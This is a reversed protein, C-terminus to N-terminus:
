DKLCEAVEWSNRGRKLIKDKKKLYRLGLRVQASTLETNKAIKKCTFYPTDMQKLYEEVIIGYEIMRGM